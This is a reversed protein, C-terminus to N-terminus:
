LVPRATSRHAPQDLFRQRCPKEVAVGVTDPQGRHIVTRRQPDSVAPQDYGGVRVHDM